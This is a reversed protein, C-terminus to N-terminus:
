TEKWLRLILDIVMKTIFAYNAWQTNETDPLFVLSIMNLYIQFSCLSKPWASLIASGEKIKQFYVSGHVLVLAVSFFFFPDSQHTKCTGQNDWMAVLNAESITLLLLFLSIIGTLTQSGRASIAMVLLSCLLQYTFSRM